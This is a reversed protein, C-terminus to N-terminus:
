ELLLEMGDARREYDKPVDLKHAPIREKDIKVVANTITGKGGKLITEVHVPYGPLAELAAFLREDAPTHPRPLRRRFADAYDRSTLAIGSVVWLRLEISKAKHVFSRGEGAVVDAPAAAGKKEVFFPSPVVLEGKSRTIGLDGAVAERAIDPTALSALPAASKKDDRVLWGSAGNTEGVLVQTGLAGLAQVEERYREGGRWITSRTTTDVTRGSVDVKISVVREVRLAEVTVDAPAVAAEAAPPSSSATAASPAAVTSATPPPQQSAEPTSASCGAVLLLLTLRHL